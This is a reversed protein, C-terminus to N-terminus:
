NSIGQAGGTQTATNHQAALSLAEIEGCLVCAVLSPSPGASEDLAIVRHEARSGKGKANM